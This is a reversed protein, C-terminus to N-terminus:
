RRRKHKIEPKPGPVLRVTHVTFLMGNEKDRKKYPSCLEVLHFDINLRIIKRKKLPLM